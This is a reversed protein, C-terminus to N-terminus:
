QQVSYWQFCPLRFAAEPLEKGRCTQGAQVKGLIHRDFVERTQHTGKRHGSRFGLIYRLLDFFRQVAGAFLARDSNVFHFKDRGIRQCAINAHRRLDGRLCQSRFKLLPQVIRLFQQLQDCRCFAGIGAAASAWPL